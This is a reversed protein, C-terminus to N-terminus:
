SKKLEQRKLAERGSYGTQESQDTGVRWLWCQSRDRCTATNCKTGKTESRGHICAYIICIHSMAVFNITPSSVLRKLLLTERPLPSRRNAHVQSVKRLHCKVHM